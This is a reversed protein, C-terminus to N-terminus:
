VHIDIKKEFKILYKYIKHYVTRFCFFFFDSYSEHKSINKELHLLIIDRKFIKWNGVINLGSVQDVLNSCMCLMKATFMNILMLVQTLFFFFFWRVLKLGYIQSPFLDYIGYSVLWAVFADLSWLAKVCVSDKLAASLM